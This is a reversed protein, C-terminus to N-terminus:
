SVGLRIRNWPMFRFGLRSSLPRYRSSDFADRRIPDRSQTELDEDGSDTRSRVVPFHLLLGLRPLARNQFGLSAAAHEARRASTHLGALGCVPGLIRAPIRLCNFTAKKCPRRQKELRSAPSKFIAITASSGPTNCSIYAVTRATIGCIQSNRLLSIM